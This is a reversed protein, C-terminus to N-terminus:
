DPEVWAGIANFIACIICSYNTVCPEGIGHAGYPGAADYSEFDQQHLNEGKFDMATPMMAETYQSSLCAGSAKDWISGAYLAQWIQLESGSRMEKITGQKFITRGTDVANWHGLVEVEGTDPDVAVEAAACSNGNSNCVEGLELDGVTRNKLHSAWGFGSGALPPTGSMVQRFTIRKTPDAKYYVESNEAAVDDVTIGEIERLGAKGIAYSFLKNRLDMAANYFGTGAGSTFGSGAQIGADLSVDTNGWEGLGVDEYKMGLTEAVIHVCTMPGGSPGRAGGVNVLCTGDPCMTVIGGRSAGNVSGHSDWHGTIAIGHLRGDSMVNNEGPKHWKGAYGTEQHLWEFMDKVAIGGWVRYPPDLDPADNERVNKMILEYPDMDLHAALKYIARDYNCAGPPDNVCRWYGRAPSNTSVITVHFRADPINYTTRLGFHCNAIPAFGSSGGDGIFKADVGLIKGDQTAGWKITSKIPFMWSHTLMSKQRTKILNVPAGNVKRSMAASVIATNEGTKDGHGCGTFHTFLHVKNAPMGFANVVANKAGHIHQSPIWVYLDEGVWWAVSQHPELTAHQYTTSYGQITELQVPASAIAGDPDGRTLDTATYYNTDPRIGSLPAGAQMAEDTDFVGPREEYEVEILDCAREAIYPDDAIVGAVEQGWKFIGETWNPVDEYTVVARVGPEALAADANINTIVGKMITSCKIAGYLKRGALRDSAFDANGTVIKAGLKDPNALQGIVKLEPKEVLAM